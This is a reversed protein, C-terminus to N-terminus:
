PLKMAQRILTNQTRIEATLERAQSTSELNSRIEREHAAILKGAFDDQLELLKATYEQQQKLAQDNSARQAAAFEVERNFSRRVLWVVAGLLLAVATALAVIGGDRGGLRELTDADPLPPQLPLM